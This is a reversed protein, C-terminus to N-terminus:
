RDVDIVEVRVAQGFVKDARNERAKTGFPQGKERADIGALRITHQVEADDLVTLTDGDALAVVKGTIEYHPKAAVAPTAVALVIAVAVRFATM